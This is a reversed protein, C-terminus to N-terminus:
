EAVKSFLDRCRKIDYLDVKVSQDHEEEEEAISPEKGTSNVEGIFDLNLTKLKPERSLSPKTKKCYDELHQFFNKEIKKELTVQSGHSSSSIHSIEHM